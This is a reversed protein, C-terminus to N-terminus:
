RIISEFRTKSDTIGGDLMHQNRRHPLMRSIQSHNILPLEDTDTDSESMVADLFNVSSMGSEIHQPGDRM